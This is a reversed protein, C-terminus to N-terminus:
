GAQHRLGQIEPAVLSSGGAQLSIRVAIRARRAPTAPQREGLVLRVLVALRWSPRGAVHTVTVGGRRKRSLRRRAVVSSTSHQQLLHTLGSGTFPSATWQMVMNHGHEAGDGLTVANRKYQYLGRRRV